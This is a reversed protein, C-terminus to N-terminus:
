KFIKLLYLLHRKLIELLYTNDVSLYKFLLTFYKFYRLLLYESLNRMPVWKVNIHYFHRSLQQNPQYKRTTNRFKAYKVFYAM